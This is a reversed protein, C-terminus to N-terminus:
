QLVNKLFEFLESGFLNKAIIKGNPDILMNGPIGKIGYLKAVQNDFSRLESLNTWYLGDKHIAEIWKDKEGPKDFSVSLITFNKDRFQHYAKKLNPNEKRCPGCWSAWFDVLVYKGNFSSLSVINGSTDPLSFEIAQKGIATRKAIALREQLKQASPWQRIDMPLMNFLPEAKDVDVELWGAVENLAYIVVPSHINNKIFAVYVESFRERAEQRKRRENVVDGLKKFYEAEKWLKEMEAQHRKDDEMLRAFQHHAASEIRNSKVSDKIWIRTAGPGLFFSLRDRKDRPYGPDNHAKFALFAIGPEILRGRFVFKGNKIGTSDLINGYQLYVMRFNPTGKLDAKITFEMPATQASLFAPFLLYFLIGKM